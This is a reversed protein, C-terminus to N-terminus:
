VGTETVETQEDVREDVGARAADQAKWNACHLFGELWHMWMCSKTKGVGAFKCRTAVVGPAAGPDQDCETLQYHPIPM